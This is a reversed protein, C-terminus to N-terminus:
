HESMSTYTMGLDVGVVVDPHSAMKTYFKNHGAAPSSHLTFYVQKHLIFYRFSPQLLILLFLSSYGREALQLVCGGGGFNNM